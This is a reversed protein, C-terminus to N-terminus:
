TGLQEWAMFFELDAADNNAKAYHKFVLYFEAGAPYGLKLGNAAYSSTQINNGQSGAIMSNPAGVSPAAGPTFVGNANIQWTASPAAITQANYNTPRIRSSQDTFTGTFSEGYGVPYAYYLRAGSLLSFIRDFLIVANSGLSAKIIIDNGVPVDKFFYSWYFETGGEFSTQQSDVPIRGIGSIESTLPIGTSTKMEQCGHEPM